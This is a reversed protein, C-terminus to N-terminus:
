QGKPLLKERLGQSPLKCSTVYCDAKATTTTQQQQRTCDMQVGKCQWRVESGKYGKPQGKM